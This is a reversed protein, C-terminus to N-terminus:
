PCALFCDIMLGTSWLSKSCIAIYLFAQLDAQWLPILYNEDVLMLLSRSALHLVFTDAFTEAACERLGWVQWCHQVEKCTVLPVLTDHAVCVCVNVSLSMIKTTPVEYASISPPTWIYIYVCFTYCHTRETIVM